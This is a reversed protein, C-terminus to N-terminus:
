IAGAANRVRQEETRQDWCKESLKFEGDHDWLAQVFRPARVPENVNLPEFVLACCTGNTRVRHVGKLALDVLEKAVRLVLWGNAPHGPRDQLVGEPIFAMVEWGARAITSQSVRIQMLQARLDRYKLNANDAMRKQVRFDHAARELDLRLVSNNWRLDSVRRYVTFFGKIRAWISM